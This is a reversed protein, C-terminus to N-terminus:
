QQKPEVGFKVRRRILKSTQYELECFLPLKEPAKYSNLLQKSDTILIPQNALLNEKSQISTTDTIHKADNSKLQGVASLSIMCIFVLVFSKVLDIL